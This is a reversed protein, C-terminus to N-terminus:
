KLRHLSLNIAKRYQAYSLELVLFFGLVEVEQVHPFYVNESVADTDQTFALM